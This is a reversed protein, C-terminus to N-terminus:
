NELMKLIVKRYLAKAQEYGKPLLRLYNDMMVGSNVELIRFGNPTELIDVSSFRINLVKAATKAIKKLEQFTNKEIPEITAGKSLNHKNSLKM